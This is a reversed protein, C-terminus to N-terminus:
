RDVNYLSGGGASGGRREGRADDVLGEGDGGRSDFRVGGGGGGGGGGTGDRGIGREFEEGTGGGRRFGGGVDGGALAWDGVDDDRPLVVRERERASRRFVGVHHRVHHMHYVLMQLLAVFVLLAAFALTQTRKKRAPPNHGRPNGDGASASGAEPDHTSMHRPPAASSIARDRRGGAGKRTVPSPIEFNEGKM